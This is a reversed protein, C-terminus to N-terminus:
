WIELVLRSQPGPATTFTIQMVCRECMIIISAAILRIVPWNSLFKVNAGLEDPPLTNLFIPPHPLDLSPDPISTATVLAPPPRNAINLSITRRLTGMVERLLPLRSIVDFEDPAQSLSLCNCKNQNTDNGRISVENSKMQIYEYM